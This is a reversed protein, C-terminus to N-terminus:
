VGEVRLAQLPVGHTLTNPKTQHGDHQTRGPRRRRALGSRRLAAGGEARPAVAPPGPHHRRRTRPTREGSRSKPPGEVLQGDAETVIRAVRLMGADLDVDGWHLGLVGRYVRDLHEPRLARLKLAGIAPILHKDIATRYNSLTTPRASHGALWARLYGAVTQERAEANAIVDLDATALEREVTRAERRITLGGPTIRRRHGSSPDPPADIRVRWRTGSKTQYKDVPMTLQEDHDPPNM